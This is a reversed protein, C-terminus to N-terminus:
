ICITGKYGHQHQKISWGDCINANGQLAAALCHRQCFMLMHKNIYPQVAPHVAKRWSDLKAPNEEVSLKADKLLAVM